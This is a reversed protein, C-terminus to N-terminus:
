QPPDALVEVTSIPFQFMDMRAAYRGDNTAAATGAAVNETAGQSSGGDEPSEQIREERVKVHAHEAREREKTEADTHDDSSVDTRPAGTGGGGTDTAQEADASEPTEAHENAAIDEQQQPSADMQADQEAPETAPKLYPDTAATAGQALSVFGVSSGISQRCSSPLRHLYGHAVEAGLVGSGGWTTSPEINVIRVQDDVSSYVYCQFASDLHDLVEDSLDDSDKFVQEPTGLLFDTDAQLGARAAPSDEVVDLVHLLHDEAGQYSDFRITVGLLGKGPWKRTPTLELERTTQAKCNYVKLRMPTDESQAILEMLTSDKTDLRIGNAETIFDFFSVFGVASAPSQEQIGLVRYGCYVSDMDEVEESDVGAPDTGADTALSSPENGM